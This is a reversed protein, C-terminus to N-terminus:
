HKIFLFTKHAGSELGVQIFYTGAPLHAIQLIPDAPNIDTQALVTKGLPDTVIMNKLPENATVHVLDSAPNPFISIFQGASIQPIGTPASCSINVAVYSDCIRNPMNMDWSSVRVIYNGCVTYTHIANSGPATGDGFDYSTVIEPILSNAWVTVTTAALSFAPPAVPCGSGPMVSVQLTATASGACNLATNFYSLTVTRTTNGSVTESAYCHNLTNGTEVPTGDGFNWSYYSDPAGPHLVSSSLSFCDRTSSLSLVTISPNCVPVLTYGSTSLAQLESSAHLMLCFSAILSITKM